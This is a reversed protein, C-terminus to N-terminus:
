GLISGRGLSRRYVREFALRLAELRGHKVADAGTVELKWSQEAGDVVEGSWLGSHDLWRGPDVEDALNWGTPLYSQLERPLYDLPAEM